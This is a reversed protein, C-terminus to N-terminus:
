TGLRCHSRALGRLREADLGAASLDAPPIVTLPPYVPAANANQAGLEIRTTVNGTGLLVYCWRQSATNTLLDRSSLYTSGTVVKLPTGAVSVTEFVGVNALDTFIDELSRTGSAASAEGGRGPRRTPSWEGFMAQKFHEWRDRIAYFDADYLIVAALAATGAAAAAAIAAVRSTRALTDPWHSFRGGATM